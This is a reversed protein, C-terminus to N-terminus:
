DGDTDAYGVQANLAQLMQLKFNFVNGQIANYIEKMKPTDTKATQVLSQPTNQIIDYMKQYQDNIRKVLSQHGEQMLVDKLSKVTEGKPTKGNFFDQSSKLARLLLEKSIDAQYYAEIFQPKPDKQGGIAGAAYGVKEARIQKEYVRVFASITSNYPGSISLDSTEAYNQRNIPNEWYGKVETISNLLTQTILYLYERAASNSQYYQLDKSPAYLLYDIAPLGQTNYTSRYGRGLLVENQKGQAILDINGEISIGGTSHTPFTNTLELYDVYASTGIDFIITSQFELYAERYSQKLDQFHEETPEDKFQKASNELLMVSQYYRQYSPLIIKDAWQKLMQSDYGKIANQNVERKCSVILLLLISGLIIIKRTM